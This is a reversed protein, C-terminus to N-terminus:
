LSRKMQLIEFRLSAGAALLADALAPDREVVLGFRPATPVAREIGGLLARAVPLTRAHFPFAGPFAPVFRMFGQAAREGAHRVAYVDGRAGRYYALQGAPLAFTAELRRDDLPAPTILALPRTSGPLRGRM